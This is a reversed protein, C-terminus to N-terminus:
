ELRDNALSLRAKELTSKSPGQAKENSAIPKGFVLDFGWEAYNRFATASDRLPLVLVVWRYDRYTDADFDIGGNGPKRELKLCRTWPSQKKEKKMQVYRTNDLHSKVRERVLDAQGRYIVPLGDIQLSCGERRELDPKFDSAIMYLGKGRWIANFSEPSKIKVLEYGPAGAKPPHETFLREFGLISKLEIESLVLEYADILGRSYKRLPM